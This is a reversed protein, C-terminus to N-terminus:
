SAVEGEATKPVFAGASPNLTKNTDTAAAPGFKKSKNFKTSGLSQGRYKGTPTPRSAPHSFKCDALSMDSVPSPAFLLVTVPFIPRVGPADSAM